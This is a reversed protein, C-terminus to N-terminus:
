KGAESLVCPESDPAILNSAVFVRSEPDFKNSMFIDTDRDAGRRGFKEGM